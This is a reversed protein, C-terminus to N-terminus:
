ECEWKEECGDSGTGEGYDEEEGDSGPVEGGFELGGEGGEATGGVRYEVTFSECGSGRWWGGFEGIQRTYERNFFQCQV